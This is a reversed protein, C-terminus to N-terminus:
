NNRARMQTKISVRKLDLWFATTKAAAEEDVPEAPAPKSLIPFLKGPAVRDQKEIHPQLILIGLRLFRQEIRDQAKLWEEQLAAIDLFTCRDFDEFSLAM